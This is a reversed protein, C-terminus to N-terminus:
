IFPCLCLTWLDRMLSFGSFSGLHMKSIIMENTVVIENASIVPINYKLIVFLLRKLFIFICTCLDDKCKFFNGSEQVSSLSSLNITGHFLSNLFSALLMCLSSLFGGCWERGWTRNYLSLCPCTSLASRHIKGMPLKNKNGTIKVSLLIIEEEQM